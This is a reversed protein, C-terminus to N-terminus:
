FIVQIRALLFVDTEDDAQLPPKDFSEYGVNSQFRVFKNLWWNVGGAIEEARNVNEIEFFQYRFALEWAGPGGDHVAAKPTIDGDPKKNEGTLVYTGHVELGRAIVDSLNTGNAGLGVRQADSHVYEAQIKVNKHVWWGELNYRFLDGNLPVDEAFVLSRSSTRGVVFREGEREGFGVAGGFSLERLVGEKWPKFRARGFFDPTGTRNVGLEGRDNQASLGYEFVRDKTYGHVMVGPSRSPVLNNLMAREIFDLYKSSQLEEQSFPAKFQGAMVQISDRPRLNLYGDRLLTSEVDAFDAQVKYEVFGYLSGQMELRARRLIFSSSPAFDATYARFDLHLRGGFEMEFNGDESRIFAHSGNWGATVGNEEQEEEGPEEPGEVGAPAANATWALALALLVWAGAVRVCERSSRM